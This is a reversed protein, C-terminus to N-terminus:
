KFCCREYLAMIDIDLESFHEVCDVIRDKCSLKVVDGVRVRGDYVVPMFAYDSQFGYGRCPRLIYITRVRVGDKLFDFQNIGIIIEMIVGKWIQNEFMTFCGPIM